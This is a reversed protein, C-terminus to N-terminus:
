KVVPTISMTIQATKVKQKLTFGLRIPNYGEPMRGSHAKLPKEVLIIENGPSSVKIEIAKDGKQILWQNEGTLKWECSLQDMVARNYTDVILAIEFKEPQTFKVEDMVVLEAFKGRKFTFSRALNQLTSVKYASTLDFKVYDKLLGFDKEVIVAKATKGTAQLQDAVVPVAHGFSNMMDSEYRGANNGSQRGYLQAGPDIILKESGLVVEFSGLDNHNHDEANNGGKISVAMGQPDKKFSRTILLGGDQHFDRIETHNESNFLNLDVINGPFDQHQLLGYHYLDNIEDLMAIKWFTIGNDKVFGTREEAYDVMWAHPKADVGHVDSFTPYLGNLIEVRSPYLAVLIARPDNLWNISNKTNIRIIESLAMFHGFGYRWYSVGENCYGEPGFGKLYYDKGLEAGAIFAARELPDDIISLAAGVVGAHCVANWNGLGKMWFWEKGPTNLMNLYPDFTDKRIFERLRKRLQPNLKEQLWYDATAVTFSRQAVALDVFHKKGYWYDADGDETQPKKWTGLSLMDQLLSEIPQIFRGKNELAEALVLTCFRKQQEWFPTEYNQRETKGEIYAMWQEKNVPLPDLLLLKEAKIIVRGAQESKSLQSWFDRDEIPHGIGMPKQPLMKSIEGIRTKDPVPFSEQARVGSFYISLLFFVM